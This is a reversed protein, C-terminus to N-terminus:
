LEVRVGYVFRGQDPYSNANPFNHFYAINLTAYYLGFIKYRSVNNLMLGAEHYGRDPVSFIVNYHVAPDALTGYLVNYAIAPKPAMTLRKSLPARFLLRNFKHLWYFNIFRDSYFQYPRMTEMAGFAYVATGQGFFGNGAFLKSLPLSQRSFSIGGLLLFRENGIRNINKVWNIAAIIQTYNINANTIRGTIIRSYFVPYKTNSSYYRGLFPSSTEGFAYRFNLSAENISFSRYLKNGSNFAYDYEPQIEERGAVAELNLYGIKKKVSVNWGKVKDARSILFMRLTNNDIDKHIQLRGPDRVDNYYSGNIMFEKYRDAYLEAFAGYKWQKDGTGYGAWGGISFMKSLKDSTQMGWGIRNKEFANYSYIRNLNIDFYGAPFKGELIKTAYVTLKEIKEKKFTSDMYEYTRKEKADLERPRLKMWTSERKDEANALLKITHAKDFMFNKDEKFSVSDIVSVGRISAVISDEKSVQWQLIYNLQQPFWRGEYKAYQQEIGLDKKSATDISHAIIHTIAFGDSSIYVTGALDAPDLKPKFNIVWITDAQQVIEDTLKFQFRQYLGKSVPNYFDKGNLNIFDDYAHFPLVDTVLTSFIPKTFGSMRSAIIQEQLKAPKQWTRKSYTETLMFYTNQLIEKIRENKKSSDKAFVSDPVNFEVLMKYYVNCQYWDYKDPNHMSRNAVASNLIRKLKNRTTRVIVVPELNVPSLQLTIVIEQKGPLIEVQQTTYNTHSVEIFKVQRNFSFKGELNAIVGEKTNGFKITAFSLPKGGPEIVKGTINQALTNSFTNIFIILIICRHYISDKLSM